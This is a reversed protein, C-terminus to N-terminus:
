ARMAGRLKTMEEATMSGSVDVAFVVAVPREPGSKREVNVFAVERREGDDYLKFDEPRLGRVPKGEADTVTVEVLVLDTDIRLVDEEDVVEPPPQQKQEQQARARPTAAQSLLLLALLLPLARAAARAEPVYILAM